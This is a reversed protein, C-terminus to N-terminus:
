VGGRNNYRMVCRKVVSFLLLLAAAAAAWVALYRAMPGTVPSVAFLSPLLQLAGATGLAMTVCVFARLRNFPICSKVVAAMSILILLLYM